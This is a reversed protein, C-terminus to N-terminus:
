SANGGTRLGVANTKVYQRSGSPSMRRALSIGRARQLARHGGQQARNVRAHVNRLAFDWRPLERAPVATMLAVGMLPYRSRVARLFIARMAAKVFWVNARTGVSWKM